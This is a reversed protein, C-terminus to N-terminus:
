VTSVQIVCFLGGIELYSLKAVGVFDRKSHLTVYECNGPVLAQVDPLVNNLRGCETM